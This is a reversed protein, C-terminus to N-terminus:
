RRQQSLLVLIIDFLTICFSAVYCRNFLEFLLVHLARSLWLSYSAVTHTHTHTHADLVYMYDKMFYACPRAAVGCTSDHRPCGDYGDFVVLALTVSDVSDASGSSRILGVATNSAHEWINVNHDDSPIDIYPQASVAPDSSVLNPGAAIANRWAPQPREGRHMVAISADSGAFSAATARLLFLGVTM